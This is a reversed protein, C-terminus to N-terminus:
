DWAAVFVVMNSIQRWTLLRVCAQLSNWFEFCGNRHIPFWFVMDYCTEVEISFFVSVYNLRLHFQFSFYQFIVWSFLAYHHNWFWVARSVSFDLFVNFSSNFQFFHSQFLNPVNHLSGFELTLISNWYLWSHLRCGIKYRSQSTFMFTKQWIRTRLWKDNFHYIKLADNCKVM